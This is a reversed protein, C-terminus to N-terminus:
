HETKVSTLKATVKGIPVKTEVRVPVRNADDTLWVVIDGKNKFLGESKLLPKVVVTDVERSDSLPLREKGLVRIEAKYFKNSDFIDIHVSKGTELLLTRLYYFGSVVDWLLGDIAHENKTGKLYNHFTVKKNAPDFITEKDSRYKGEKQRIRFHAPIGNVVTSEAFDEVKYFSSLFPSSRVRSTIKVVGKEKVAEVEASGVFIDLWYIDFFLEERASKLLEVSSEHMGPDTPLAPSEKEKSPSGTAATAADERVPVNEEKTFPAEGEPSSSGDNQGDPAGGDQAAEEPETKGNETSKERKKEEPTAEPTPSLSSSPIVGPSGTRYPRPPKESEVATVLLLPSPPVFSAFEGTGPLGMLLSAHLVLSLALSLVSPTSIYKAKKMPAVCVMINYQLLSGKCM